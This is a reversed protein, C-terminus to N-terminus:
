ENTEKNNNDKNSNLKILELAEDIRSNLINEDELIEFIEKKSPLGLIMGTIKGVVKESINNEKIIDSEEIKRFIIEGLFERKEEETKLNNYENWNINDANNSTINNNYFNYNINNYNNNNNNRNHNYNRFSHNKGRRSFNYNRNYNNYNNFNMFQNYTMNINPFPFKNYLNFDNNNSINFNPNNFNIFNNSNNKYDMNSNNYQNINININNFNFITPTSNSSFINNCNNNNGFNQNMYVSNTNSSTENMIDKDNYYFYNLTSFDNNINLNQREQNSLFFEIMLPHSWSEFGPLYKGDLEDKAKEASEPNEFSIYGFGKSITIDGKKYTEIKASTIKGYKSFIKILDKEECNLPINKIYLNNKKQELKSQYLQVSLKTNNIEKKDLKVLLDKAEKESSFQVIGFNKNNNNDYFINCSQLSGYQKCLNCLDSTTYKEPLNTIYLKQKNLSHIDKKQLNRENKKQFFSIEIYNNDFAELQKDKTNDLAEKAADQSYFTIYGYGYHNGNDDETMKCSSIDGFNSFYEYVTRPSINKPIGKFFLNNKTNYLIDTDHEDWMIRISKNKYKVLNMELRCKNASSYDKFSVKFSISKRKEYSKKDFKVERISPTYDSLFSFIDNETVKSSFPFDTLYLTNKTNSTM